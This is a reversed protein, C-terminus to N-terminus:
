GVWSRDVAQFPNGVVRPDDVAASSFIIQQSGPADEQRLTAPVIVVHQLVAARIGTAAGTAFSHRNRAPEITRPASLMM